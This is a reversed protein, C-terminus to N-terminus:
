STSMKASSTASTTSSTQFSSTSSFQNFQYFQKFQSFHYFQNFHKFQYFHSFHYFQNFQNFQDRMTRCITTSCNSYGDRQSANEANFPGVRTRRPANNDTGRRNKQNTQFLLLFAVVDLPIHTAYEDHIITVLQNGPPQIKARQRSVTKKFRHLSAAPSDDRSMAIESSGVQCEM